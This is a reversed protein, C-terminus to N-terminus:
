DLVKVRSWTQPLKDQWDGFMHPIPTVVKAGWNKEAFFAAWSSYTSNSTVLQKFNSLLFFAEIDTVGSTPVLKSKNVFDSGLIEYASKIDDTFLWRDVDDEFHLLAERYFRLGLIPFTSKNRRYDGFRAHIAVSRPTIQNFLSAAKIGLSKKLGNFKMGNSSALEAWKFDLFHGEIKGSDPILHVSENPELGTDCWFLDKEELFRRTPIRLKDSAFLVYGLLPSFSSKRFNLDPFGLDLNDVVLRRHPNSGFPIQSANFRIPVKKFRSIAIGAAIGHLQNGLGGVLKIELIQAEM